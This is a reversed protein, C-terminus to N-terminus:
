IEAKARTSVVKAQPANLAAAPAPDVNEVPVLSEDQLTDQSDTADNSPSVLKAEADVSRLFEQVEIYQDASMNHINERVLAAFTKVLRKIQLQSESGNGSTEYTRNAFINEIENRIPTYQSQQLIHPWYIKGTEPNFQTASLKKPRYYDVMKKRAEGTFAKRRYRKLYEDQMEKKDMYAKTYAVSNEIARRQAEQFNVLAISQLYTLEGYARVFSAQGNLVGEEYTSSHDTYSWNNNPYAIAPGQASVPAADLAATAAVGALITRLLKLPGVGSRNSRWAFWYKSRSDKTLSVDTAHANLLQNSAKHRLTNVILDRCLKLPQNETPRKSVISEIISYRLYHASRDHFENNQVWYCCQM